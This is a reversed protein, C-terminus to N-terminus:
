TKCCRVGCPAWSVEGMERWVFRALPQIVRYEKHYEEVELGGVAREVINGQSDAAVFVSRGIRTRVDYEVWWYTTGRPLLGLRPYSDPSENVIRAIIRGRSLGDDSILYNGAEPQIKALPGFRASDPYRGVLLAQRDGLEEEELFELERLYALISESAASDISGLFGPAPTARQAVQATAAGAVGASWLGVVLVMRLSVRRQEDTFRM